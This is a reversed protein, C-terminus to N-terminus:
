YFMKDVEEFSRMQTMSIRAIKSNLVTDDDDNM